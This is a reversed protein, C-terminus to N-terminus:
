LNYFDNRIQKPTKGTYKKLTKRMYAPSGFNLLESIKEVTLDTNILYKVAGNCRLKNKYEVPTYGTYKKFQMYFYPESMGCIKALQPVSAETNNEMYLIVENIYKMHTNECRKLYPAIRHYLEYFKSICLLGESENNYTSYIEDFLSRFQEACPVSQLMYPSIYSKFMYNFSYFSVCKDNRIWKSIYKAGKPIYIIEGERVTITETQTRFYGTGDIVYGFCDNLFGASCDVGGTEPMQAKYVMLMDLFLRRGEM